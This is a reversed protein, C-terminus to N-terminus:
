QLQERKWNNVEINHSKFWDILPRRESCPNDEAEYVLLVINPEGVYHTIKRVDDAVREFESLIYNIDVTDLHARYRRLFECNPLEVRRPCDKCCLVEDEVDIKYPSLEKECIGLFINNKDIGYKWFKPQWVATSIPICNENMNRLNAFNGIYIKM